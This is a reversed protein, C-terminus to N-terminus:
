SGSERGRGVRVGSSTAKFRFICLKHIYVSIYHSSLQCEAHVHVDGSGHPKLFYLLERYCIDSFTGLFFIFFFRLAASIFVKNNITVM